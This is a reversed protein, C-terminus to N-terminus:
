DEVESDTDNDWEDESTWAIQSKVGFESSWFLEEDFKFIPDVVLNLPIMVEFESKDLMNRLPSPKRPSNTKPLIVAVNTMGIFMPQPLQSM